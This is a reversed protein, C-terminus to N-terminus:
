KVENKIALIAEEVKNKDALYYHKQVTLDSNLEYVLPIGIPIDLSEIDKDSINDLMKVLARLSNGHAVILVNKRELIATAIIEKWYAAVRFFVDELSESDPENIRQEINAPKGATAEASAPPKTKYERRWAIVQELGFKEVAKKREVGQLAGYHRENLQWAREVPIDSLGM